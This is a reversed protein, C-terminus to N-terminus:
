AARAPTIGDVLELIKPIAWSLSVSDYTETSVVYDSGDARFVYYLSQYVRQESDLDLRHVCVGEGLGAAETQTYTAPEYENARQAVLTSLLGDLPGSAEDVDLVVAVFGPAEDAILAWFSEHEGSGRAVEVMTLFHEDLTGSRKTEQFGRGRAREAQRAAWAEATADDADPFSTPVRLWTDSDFDVRFSDM